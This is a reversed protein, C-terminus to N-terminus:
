LTDREYLNVFTQHNPDYPFLSATVALTGPPEAVSYRLRLRLSQREPLIEPASWEPNLKHGDAIVELRPGLLSRIATAQEEAMASALLRESPTIQLEHALDFVHVVLAVDIERERIEADLYSFPVPHAFVSHTVALVVAVLWVCRFAM